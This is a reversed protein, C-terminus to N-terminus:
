VVAVESTSLMDKTKGKNAALGMKTSQRGMANFAATVDRKTRGKIDIDDAYALLQFSKQFITGTRHVVAKRLVSEM